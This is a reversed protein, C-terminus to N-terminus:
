TGTWIAAVKHNKLMSIKALLLCEQNWLFYTKSKLDDAPEMVQRVLLKENLNFYIILILFRFDELAILWAAVEWSSWEHSKSLWVGLGTAKTCIGEGLFNSGCDTGFFDNFLRASPHPTNVSSLNEQSSKWGLCSTREAPHSSDTDINSQIRSHWRGHKGVLTIRWSTPVGDGESKRFISDTILSKGSPFRHKRSAPPYTYIHAYVLGAFAWPLRFRLTSFSTPSLRVEQLQYNSSLALGSGKIIARPLDTVSLHFAVCACM